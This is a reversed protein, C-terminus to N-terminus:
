QKAVQPATLSNVRLNNTSENDNDERLANRLSDETMGRNM